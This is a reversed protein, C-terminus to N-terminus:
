NHNKLYEISGTINEFNPFSVIEIVQSIIEKPAKLFSFKHVVGDVWDPRHNPGWIQM